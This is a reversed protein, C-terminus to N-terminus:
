FTAALKTLQMTSYYPDTSFGTSTYEYAKVVDGAALQLVASYAGATNINNSATGQSAGAGPVDSGNVRFFLQFSANNQLALVSVSALYFGASPAVFSTQDGTLAHIAGTDWENDNYAFIGIGVPFTQTGSNTASVSPGLAAGGTGGGGTGPQCTLVGATDYLYGTCPPILNISKATINGQSDVSFQAVAAVAALALILLTVKTKKM